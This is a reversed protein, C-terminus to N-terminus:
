LIEKVEFSPKNLLTQQVRFLYMGLIGLSSLILSSSFLVAVIISTYGMPVDFYIKRFIFYIGSALSVYAGLFGLIMMVRLPVTSQNIVIAVYISVLRFFGYGSVKSKSELHTVSVHGISVTYWQVISDLFLGVQVNRSVVKDVLSRSLIRFSSGGKTNESNGKSTMRLYWSGFNRILPGKRVDPMGYILDYDSNVISNYLVSIEEPQFQLDDDITVVWNGRTLNLGCMLAGHQGYNRSLRIAKLWEFQTKLEAIVKWSNDRSGDDILLVEYSEFSRLSSELRHILEPLINESNFVPVVISIEPKM